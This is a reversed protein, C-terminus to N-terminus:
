SLTQTPAVGSASPGVRAAEIQKRKKEEKQRAERKLARAEKRLRKVEAESTDEPASCRDYHKKSKKDPESAPVTGWVGDLRSTDQPTSFLQMLADTALPLTVVAPKETLKTLEEKMAALKVRVSDLGLRDLSDIRNILHVELGDVRGQM